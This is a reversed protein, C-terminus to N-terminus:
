FDYTVGLNIVDFAQTEGKRGVQAPVPVHWEFMARFYELQLHLNETAHYTVGTSLGIQHKIPVAGTSDPYQACLDVGGSPCTDDNASPTAPNTDDDRWDEKDEKLQHVRTIGAAAMWDFKDGLNVQLHASAGDVDRFKVDPQLLDKRASEHPQLAFDIGIGTGLHAALGLNVPGLEVRGGFGAGVVTQEQYGERAYLKQYAGNGFLKFMGLGGLKMEYTAEAELRPLKTRELAVQGPINNADYAGVEIKFGALDPTAYAVGAGFGNGLIGFGVHGAGPGPGSLQSVSGPWGLGYRYGYLYTIETAGRSFLVGARGATVQGWDGKLRLYSERWDPSIATYKRRASSEIVTTVATYGSLEMGLPLQKKIGFGLVNGTFGSRIRLEQVTGRATQANEGEILAISADGRGQGGGLLSVGSGTPGAEPQPYGNGQNYNLFAQMRGNIYVTWGDKEVLTIDAKASPSALVFAAGFAV